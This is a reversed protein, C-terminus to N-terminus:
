VMKFPSLNLLTFHAKSLLPNPNKIYCEQTAMTVDPVDVAPTVM